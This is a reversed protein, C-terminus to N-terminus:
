VIWVVSLKLDPACAGADGPTPARCARGFASQREVHTHIYIYICVCLYIYIYIYVYM